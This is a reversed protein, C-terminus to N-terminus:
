QGVAYEGAVFENYVDYMSLQRSSVVAPGPPRPPQFTTGRGPDSGLASVPKAFILRDVPSIRRKSTPRAGPLPAISAVAPSRTNWPSMDRRKRANSAAVPLCSHSDIRPPFTETLVM